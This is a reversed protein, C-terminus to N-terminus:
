IKNSHAKLIRMLVKEEGTLGSTNKNGHIKVSAAYLGLKNEEYLTLLLPNVYYKKCVARSNGLQLSVQDLVEVINQKAANVSEAIGLNRLASLANLTGAWTRFDKASFDKGTANRIYENVKGSDIPHHTGDGNVYQFLEKGPIERCQKVIRALKKSKLKISHYVGKKGIFSFRMADGSINVHKNKLTTLGHSGYEKEYAHNGIRIHTQELLSVITAIVKDQSLETNGMDEKLRARLKPLCNGFDYMRHFKTENRLSNWDAHYRYQKRNRSDIGTAQLHGNHLSSIWVNKWAPPLVLKKIRELQAEDHVRKNNLFYTFKKGSKKREIGSRADTVYVLDAARAHKKAEELPSIETAVSKKVSRMGNVTKTLPM